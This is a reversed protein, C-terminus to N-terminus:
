DYEDGPTEGTDTLGSTTRYTDKEEVQKQLKSKEQIARKKGKRERWWAFGAIGTLFYSTINGINVADALKALASISDPNSHVIDRFGDMVIYIALVGGIVQILIAAFGLGSVWRKNSADIKALELDFKNPRSSM